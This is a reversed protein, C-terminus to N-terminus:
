LLYFLIDIINNQIFSPPLFCYYSSSNKRSVGQHTDLILLKRLKFRATQHELVKEHFRTKKNTTSSGLFRVYEIGKGLACYSKM